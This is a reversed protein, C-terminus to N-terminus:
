MGPTLPAGFCPLFNLTEASSVYTTDRHVLSDQINCGEEQCILVLECDPLYLLAM